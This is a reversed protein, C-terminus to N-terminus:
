LGISSIITSPPLVSSVISITFELMSLNLSSDKEILSNLSHSKPSIELGAFALFMPSSAACPSNIKKMSASVQKISSAVILLATESIFSWSKTIM